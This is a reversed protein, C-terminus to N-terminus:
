HGMFYIFSKLTSTCLQNKMDNMIKFAEFSTMRNKYTRQTTLANFIDCISIVKALKNIEDTKLGKPYGSGDCKEHHQEIVELLTENNEGNKKLIKVGFTPHKQVLSFEKQTLKGDKTIIDHPIFKKGIDHLIAAKGLLILEEKTLKLYAGFGIAYIAVDISHTYTYYDYSTVKLMADMANEEKLLLEVKSNILTNVKSLNKSTVESEFLENITDTAIEKLLKSKSDISIESDELLEKIHIQIYTQYSIKDENKIYFRANNQEISFYQSCKEFPKNKPLLLSFIQEDVKRYINYPYQEKSKLTEKAIPIFKSVKPEQM